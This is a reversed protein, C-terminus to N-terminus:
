SRSRDHRLTLVTLEPPCLFRVPVHIVGVGRNTYLQLSGFNYYGMPYKRAGPPLYLPGILPLRIQGGHSHGSIQLDIPYRRMRDACDPEHVALVVCEGAPVGRLMAEPDPKGELVNDMGALWFRAGAAEIPISRNRLVPIQNAKLAESVIAANTDLDHNGLVAVQGHRAKIDRLVQACPWADQARQDCNGRYTMTVYDGTLAVLDPRQANVADVIRRLHDQTMLESFHIDSLQVLRFGDFAAPLRRLHIERSEVRLENVEHVGDFGLAAGAGLLAIGKLFDRRPLEQSLTFLREEIRHRDWARRVLRLLSGM